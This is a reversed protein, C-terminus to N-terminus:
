RVPEAELMRDSSAAIEALDTFLEPDAPIFGEAGLGALIVAHRDIEPTLQLFANRLKDRSSKDYGPQLAWVNDAFPPSEWLIRVDGSALRGDFLMARVVASNATGLAVIGDRVRYATRDHAGSYKIASFFTEPEIGQQLLFFRPMLHGSTSLRSGFSIKGGRLDQLTEATSDGSVMFYSTFRTDIRRMVLPQANAQRRARVYTFGGLYALDVSREIFMSLLQDYSQPIVLECDLGLYESLHALLPEYRQRLRDSSQDPLVGIRLTKPLIRGGTDEVELSPYYFIVIGVSCFVLLILMLWARKAGEM